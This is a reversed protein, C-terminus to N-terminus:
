CGRRRSEGFEDTGATAASQTENRPRRTPPASARATRPVGGFYRSLAAVYDASDGHLVPDMVEEMWAPMGGNLVYVDPHGRAALNAWAQADRIDDDSYLVVTTKRQSAITDLQSLDAPQASPVHLSEYASDTRLDLVRVDRAGERIWAALQIAGIHRAVLAAAGADNASERAAMPAPAVPSGIIAALVALVVATAALARRIDVASM